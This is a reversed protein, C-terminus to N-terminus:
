ATPGANRVDENMNYKQDNSRFKAALARAQVDYAEGDTWTKRPDLVDSPVKPASTPIQLGFIPHTVFEAHALTGDLISTVFARTYPLSFREGTGYPGGTWGTNLLWVNANHADVRKALWEAYEM